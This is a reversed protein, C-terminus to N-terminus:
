TWLWVFSDSSDGDLTKSPPHYSLPSCDLQYMCRRPSCTWMCASVATATRTHATLAKILGTILCLNLAAKRLRGIEMKFRFTEVMTDHDACMLFFFFDGASFFCFLLFTSLYKLWDTLHCLLSLPCPFLFAISALQVHDQGKRRRPVYWVGPFFSVSYVTLGWATVGLSLLPGHSLVATVLCIWM